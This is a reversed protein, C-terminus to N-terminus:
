RPTAVRSLAAAAVLDADDEVLEGTVEDCREQDIPEAEAANGLQHLLGLGRAREGARKIAPM